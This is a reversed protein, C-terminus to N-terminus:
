CSCHELIILSYTLYRLCLKSASVAKSLRVNGKVPSLHAAEREASDDENEFGADLDVVDGDEMEKEQHASSSMAKGSGSPVRASQSNKFFKATAAVAVNANASPYARKKTTPNGSQAHAFTVEEDKNPHPAVDKIPNDIKGQWNNILGAAGKSTCIPAQVNKFSHIFYCLRLTLEHQCDMLFSSM